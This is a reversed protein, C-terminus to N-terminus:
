RRKSKPPISGTEIRKPPEALKTQVVNLEVQVQRIDSTLRDIDRQLPAAARAVDSPTAYDPLAKAVTKRDPAGFMLLMSLISVSVALTAQTKFSLGLVWTKFTTLASKIKDM